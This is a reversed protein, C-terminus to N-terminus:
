NQRGPTLSIPSSVTLSAPSLGRVFSTPETDSPLTLRGAGYPSPQGWMEGVRVFNGQVQIKLWTALIELALCKDAPGLIVDVPLTTQPSPWPVSPRPGVRGTHTRDCTTRLLSATTWMWGSSRNRERYFPSLVIQRVRPLHTTVALTKFKSLLGCTSAIVWKGRKWGWPRAELWLGRSAQVTSSEPQRRLSCKPQLPVPCPLNPRRLSYRAWPHPHCIVSGPPNNSENAGEGGGHSRKRVETGTSRPTCLGGTSKAGKM